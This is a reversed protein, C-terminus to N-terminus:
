LIMQATCETMLLGTQQNSGYDSARQNTKKKPDM